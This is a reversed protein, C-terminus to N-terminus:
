ILDPVPLLRMGCRYRDGHGDGAHLWLLSLAADDVDRSTRVSKCTFLFPCHLYVRAGAESLAEALQCEHPGLPMTINVIDSAATRKRVWAVVDEEPMVSMRSPAGCVVPGIALRAQGGSTSLGIDCFPNSLLANSGLHM